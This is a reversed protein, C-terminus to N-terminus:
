LLDEWKRAGHFVRMIRIDEHVEYFVVYNGVIIRRVGDGFQSQSEGRYPVYALTSIAADIQHLMRDAAAESDKAIYAWIGSLDDEAAPSKYIRRDPM